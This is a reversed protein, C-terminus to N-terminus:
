FGFISITEIIKIIKPLMGKRAYKFNILPTIFTSVSSLIIIIWNIIKKKRLLEM